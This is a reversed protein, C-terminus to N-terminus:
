LSAKLSPQYGFHATDSTDHGLFEKV